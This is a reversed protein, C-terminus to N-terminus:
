HTQDISFRTVKRCVLLSPITIKSHSSTTDNFSRDQSCNRRLAAITHYEGTGRKNKRDHFLMVTYKVTNDVKSFLLFICRKGDSARGGRITAEEAFVVMANAGESIDDVTTQHVM